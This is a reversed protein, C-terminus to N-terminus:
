SRRPDLVVTAGSMSGETVKSFNASYKWACYQPSWWNGGCTWQSSWEDTVTLDWAGFPLVLDFEGMALDATTVSTTIVCGPNEGGGSGLMTARIGVRQAPAGSNSSGNGSRSAELKVHVVGVGVRMSSATDSSGPVADLVGAQLGSGAQWKAPNPALCGGSGAQNPESYNGYVVSYGASDPFVRLPNGTFTRTKSTTSSLPLLTISKTGPWVWQRTPSSSNLDASLAPDGTDWWVSYLAGKAMFATLSKTTGATFKYTHAATDEGALLIPEPNGELDVYTGDKSLTIKYDGVPVGIAFSCGNGDTVSPVPVTGDVSGSPTLDVSVGQVGFGDAGKVALILVGRNPDNLSGNPALLTDTQVTKLPTMQGRWTVTINIRLMVLNTGSGGSCSVDNGASDVWATTRHVTFVTGDATDPTVDREDDKVDFVSQYARVQDIEGAALSLATIRNKQDGALRIVTVLGQAIGVFLLMFILTAALVEVISIGSDDLRARRLHRLVGSRRNVFGGGRNFTHHHPVATTRHGM